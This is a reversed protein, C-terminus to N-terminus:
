KHKSELAVLRALEDDLSTAPTNPVADPDDFDPHQGLVKDLRQVSMTLDSIEKTTLADVHLLRQMLRARALVMATTGMSFLAEADAVSLHKVQGSLEPVAEHGKEGRGGHIHCRGEGQHNTGLGAPQQCFGDKGRQRKANCRPGDYNNLWNTDIGPDPETGTTEIEAM